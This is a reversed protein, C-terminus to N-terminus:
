LHVNMFHSVNELFTCGMQVWIFPTVNRSWQFIPQINSKNKIFCFFNSDKEKRSQGYELNAVILLCVAPFLIPYHLRPM